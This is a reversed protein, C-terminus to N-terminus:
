SVKRAARTGATTRRPKGDLEGQQTLAVHLRNLEIVVASVRDATVGHEFWGPGEALNWALLEDPHEGVFVEFWRVNAALSTLWTTRADAQAALTDHQEREEALVKEMAQEFTLEGSSIAERYQAIREADKAQQQAQWRRAQLQEYAAALSLTCAVVQEALDPAEALIDRAQSLSTKSVKFQKALSDMSIPVTQVSNGKAKPGPKSYGDLGWARAAVIAKQGATLDRRQVNLSIVLALAGADDGEFDSFAPEVEARECALLRNRGDLVLGKYRVVPQRLGHERIDETLADLEDGSMLPFLNAYEHAKLNSRKAM